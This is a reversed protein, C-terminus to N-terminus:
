SNEVVEVACFMKQALHKERCARSTSALYVAINVEDASGSLHVGPLPLLANQWRQQFPAPSPHRQETFTSVPAAGVM